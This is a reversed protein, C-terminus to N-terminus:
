DEVRDHIPLPYHIPFRSDSSWCFNGGMMSHKRGIKTPKCYYYDRGEVNRTKLEIAPADNSEESVEPIGEGVLTLSSFKSSVGGATCDFSDSRLVDVMLGKRKPQIVVPEIVPADTIIQYNFVGVIAPMEEEIKTVAVAKNSPIKLNISPPVLAVYRAYKHGQPDVLITERNPASVAVCLTCEVEKGNITVRDCGGKGAIWSYHTMLNNTFRDYNTTSLEIWETVKCQETYSEGKLVQVQYEELTNNKNINAFTGEVSFSVKTIKEPQIEKAANLAEQAKFEAKELKEKNAFEKERREAETQTKVSAFSNYKRALSAYKYVENIDNGSFYANGKSTAEITVGDNKADTYYGKVYELVEELYEKTFLRNTHIFNLRTEVIEGNFNVPLRSNNAYGRYQEVIEVIEAESAGDTWDIEITYFDSRVSFKISPYLAKLDKRVQKAVEKCEVLRMQNKREKNGRFDNDGVLNYNTM